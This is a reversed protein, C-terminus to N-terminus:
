HTFVITYILGKEIMKKGTTTFVYLRSDKKVAIYTLGSTPITVQKALEGGITIDNVQASEHGALTALWAELTIDSEQVHINETDNPALTQFTIEDTSEPLLSWDPPYFFRLGKTEGQYEQGSKKLLGATIESSSPTASLIRSGDLIAVPSSVSTPLPTPNPPLSAAFSADLSRIYFRLGVVGGLGLVLVILAIPIIFSRTPQM